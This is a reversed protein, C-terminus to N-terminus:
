VPCPSSPILFIRFVKHIMGTSNSNTAMPAGLTWASKYVGAKVHVAVQATDGGVAGLTDNGEGVDIVSVQNTTPTKVGGIESVRGAMSEGVPVYVHLLVLSMPAVGGNRVNVIVSMVVPTTVLTVSVNLTENARKVSEPLRVNVATGSGPVALRVSSPIPNTNTVRFRIAWPCGCAVQVCQEGLSRQCWQAGVAELASRIAWHAM